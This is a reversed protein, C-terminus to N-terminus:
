DGVSKRTESGVLYYDVKFLINQVSVTEASNYSYYDIYGGKLGYFTDYGRATPLYEPRSLGVHWKGVLHTAYGLDKMYSPLLKETLPIGRDEANYLPLGHM